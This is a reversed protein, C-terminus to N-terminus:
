QPAYEVITAPFLCLPSSHRRAMQNSQEANFQSRPRTLQPVLMRRPQQSKPCCSSQPSCVCPPLTFDQWKIQNSLTLSPDHDQRSHYWCGKRSNVRQFLVLNLNITPCRQSDNRPVSVPPFLSTKGNSKSQEANFQSRPRTSQPVLMRKRSNVRQVFRSEPKNRPM